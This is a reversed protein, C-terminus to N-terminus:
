FHSRPDCARAGIREQRGRRINLFLNVGAPEQTVTVDDAEVSSALLRLDDADRHHLFWEGFEMYARTPNAKSFNGIVVGGPAVLRLLKELLVRFTRDDLYDFLGAPGSSIM